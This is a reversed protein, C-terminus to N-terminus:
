VRYLSLRKDMLESGGRLSSPTLFSRAEPNHDSTEEAENVHSDGISGKYPRYVATLLEELYDCKCDKQLLDTERVVKDQNWDPIAALLSQFTWLVKQPSPSEVRAQELLGLVYSELVPVLFVSLQRTYEGKAEGYVSIEPTDM